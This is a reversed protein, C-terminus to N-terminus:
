KECSKEFKEILNEIREKEEQYTANSKNVEEDGLNKVYTKVVEVIRSYPEKRLNLLRGLRKGIGSPGNASIDLIIYCISQLAFLGHELRRMYIEVELEEDDDEEMHDKAIELDEQKVEDSYKYYLEMLRDVKEYDNETFKLVVRQKSNGTCNKLLSSIISVIHEENNYSNSKKRKSIKVPKMFLPFLVGLGLMEVFAQCSEKGELNNMAYSLVKLASTRANKQERLILRMLQLGEGKLFKVRNSPLMLSSCLANFLNEMYESEDASSPDHRKYYALQQLLIDIGDLEGLLKRNEDQSQVLISLLETAYLKNSDFQGKVKLRKLLWQFFAQKTSDLSLFPKVEIINEVIGLSNHVAEAEDKNNENFRELNAVLLSFIQQDCLLDILAKVNDFGEISDSELDTLEQLLSIVAASIDINEHSLLGLLIQICNSDLLVNYLEAHTSILHMEQIIENLEIESDMFKEPLEPYKIRMEQNKTVRKELQNLLKKM